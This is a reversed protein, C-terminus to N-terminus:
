KPETVVTVRDIKPDQLVQVQGSPWRIEVKEVSAADGLGFHLRNSSQSLYGGAAQVQRLLTRGGATVRVLAGIADGNTRTAVLRLAMWRKAPTTNRYLFVRDNFNSVLLDLRGDGDFDATAACRASRAAPRGGITEPSFNGGPPPETGAPRCVDVFTGDGRNRLLPSRWYFFPFGMGSPLFLDQFGDGDFDGEVCGWPWFTEAGARDSVEEYKGGGLGRHLANGFFVKGRDVGAKIEFQRDQEPTSLGLEISRAFFSAYKRGPEIHKPDIDVPMWMDSHMDVVCLDLRGDNDYDFARTGVAGWSTRGLMEETADTFRGKGDNRHLTSAGFMNCVFLDLDGDGDADFVAVDGGWGKGALNAEKTADTFKGKGDNRYYVDYLRESEILEDLTRKGRWYKMENDYIELTWRATNTVFLDLDGDGDADFFVPVESEAVLELGAENTADRFKMGGENVFYANGGRTTTIFLDADGDGDADAAAASVCIRDALAVGSDKTVDEFSGDGRNRFLANAGLQNLLLVDDDGDGDFDSVVIGCGHDYLNIRFNQGQELPLFNTRFRLGKAEACEEFRMGGAPAAGAAAPPTGAPPVSPSKSDDGCGALAAAALGIALTGVRFRSM